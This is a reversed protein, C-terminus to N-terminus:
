GRGAARRIMADMNFADPTSQTGSGANGRPAPPKEFLQPYAETLAGIDVNGKRDFADIELAGLWALKLNNCGEDAMAEYFDNRRNAADLDAGIQELQVRAESGEDLKATADRLKGALDKRQERESDLAGRLGQTHEDIMAQREPELESYWTDYTEVQRPDGEAPDQEGNSQGNTNDLNDPM